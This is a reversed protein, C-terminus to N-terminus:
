FAGLKSATADNGHKLLTVQYVTERSKPNGDADLDVSEQSYKVVRGPVEREVIWWNLAGHGANGSQLHDTKFTGAPTELNVTAVKLGEISEPTLSHQTHLVWANADKETIPVEKAEREDPYKARMRRVRRSGDEGAPAFLAEIVLEVQKGNDDKARSEVRWWESGDANRVLLAKEFWEGQEVGKADWRTFEGPQYQAFQFNYGGHYFLMQFLGMSYARMLEPTLNSLLHGAIADGMRQGVRNAASDVSRGIARDILHAPSCASFSLGLGLALGM